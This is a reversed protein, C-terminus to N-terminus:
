PQRHTTRYRGDPTREVRGARELDALIEGIRKAVPARTGVVLGAHLLEAALGAATKGGEHVSLVAVLKGEPSIIDGRRIPAFMKRDDM